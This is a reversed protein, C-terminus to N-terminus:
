FIGNRFMEGTFLCHAIIIQIKDIRVHFIEFTLETLRSATIIDAAKISHPILEFDPLTM